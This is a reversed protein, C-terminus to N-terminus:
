GCKSTSFHPSGVDVPFADSSVSTQDSSKCGRLTVTSRTGLELVQLSCLRLIRLAENKINISANVDRDHTTQCHECTWNRVDLPLSGGQNLCVHFTNSSPFFRDIELYTKGAKEAKYKLM